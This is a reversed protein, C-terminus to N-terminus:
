LRLIIEVCFSKNKPAHVNLTHECIKLFREPNYDHFVEQSLHKTLDTIFKANCFRKYDRYLTVKPALKHFSSKNVVVTMKHFDSLGSEVVCSNQFNRPSNTLCLDICTPKSPNKFCTPVTILSKLNFHNCFDKMAGDKVEANFDGLILFHDYKSIYWNLDGQIHYM